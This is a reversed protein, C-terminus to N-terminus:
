TRDGRSRLYARRSVAVLLWFLAFVISGVRYIPDGDAPASFAGLLSVAGLILYLWWPGRFTSGLRRPITMHGFYGGRRCDARGSHFDGREYVTPTPHSSRISL